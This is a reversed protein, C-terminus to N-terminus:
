AKMRTLVYMAYARVLTFGMFLTNARLDWM